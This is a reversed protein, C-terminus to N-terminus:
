ESKIPELLKAINEYGLDIANMYATMNSYDKLNQDAGLDLLVKVTEEKEGLAAYILPTLGGGVEQYDLDAGASHLLKVIEAKGAEAATMLPTMGYSNENNPDAGNELLTQVMEVKGTKISWDMATYGTYDEVEINKVEKSLNKVSDIEGNIAAQIIPPTDAIEMAEEEIDAIDAFSNFSEIANLGYYLGGIIMSFIILSVSGFVWNLKSRKSLIISEMESFYTQIADIRKPLPPHSSLFESLWVFFGKEQNIQNMFEVYNVRSANKKGIALIMLSNKSARMNGSYYAAYRDCTYECARLYTEAVGPIWMAPLIFAMKGLHNRKIHALEHALIFHLEEELGEEILDFIESYVVVMNKSFFRTAFANLVGGSQMVYVDPVKKLEMEYCLEEVKKYVSPFQEPSIKVANTRIQGMNIGHLMFSLLFLCILIILGIMSVALLVYTIMSILLVVWFNVKEKNYVLDEPTLKHENM